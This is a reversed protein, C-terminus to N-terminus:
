ENTLRDFESKVREKSTVKIDEYPQRCRTFNREM